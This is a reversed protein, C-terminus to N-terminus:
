KNRGGMPISIAYISSSSSLPHDKSSNLEFGHLKILEKMVEQKPLNRKVEEFDKAAKFKEWLATDRKSIELLINKFRKFKIQGRVSNKFSYNCRQFYELVEKQALSRNVGKKPVKRKRDITSKENSGKKHNRKGKIKKRDPVPIIIEGRPNIAFILNQKAETTLKGSRLGKVLLNSLHLLYTSSLPDNAKRLFTNKLSKIQAEYITQQELFSSLSKNIEDIVGM